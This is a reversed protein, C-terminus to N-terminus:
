RARRSRCPFHGVDGAVAVFGAGIVGRRGELAEDLVCLLQGGEGSHDVLQDVRDILGVDRGLLQARQQLRVRGQGCSQELHGVGDEVAHAAVHGRHGPSHDHQAVLGDTAQRQRDPGLGEPIADAAAPLLVRLLAHEGVAEGRRHGRGQHRRADARRLQLLVAEEGPQEVVDPPHRQDGLGAFPVAVRHHIAGEFLAVGDLELPLGPAEIVGLQASAQQLAEVERGYVDFGRSAVVARDLVGHRFWGAGAHDHGVVQDLAEVEAEVIPRRDGGRSWRSM